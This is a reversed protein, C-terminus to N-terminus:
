KEEIWCFDYLVEGINEKHGVQGSLNSSSNYEYIAEYDPYLTEEM